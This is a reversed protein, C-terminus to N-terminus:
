LIRPVFIFVKNLPHNNKRVSIKAYKKEPPIEIVRNVNLADPSKTVFIGFSVTFICITAEGSM